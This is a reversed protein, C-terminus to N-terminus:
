GSKSDSVWSRDQENILEILEPKLEEVMTSKQKDTLYQKEASQIILEKVEEEIEPFNNRLSYKLDNVIKDNIGAAIIESSILGIVIGIEAVRSQDYILDVPPKQGKQVSDRFGKNIVLMALENGELIESTGEDYDCRKMQILSLSDLHQIISRSNDTQDFDSYQITIVPVMNKRGVGGFAFAFLTVLAIPLLFTLLIAKWDSFLIKLDKLAINFM